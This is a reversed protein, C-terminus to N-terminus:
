ESIRHRSQMRFLSKRLSREQSSMLFAFHGNLLNMERVRSEDRNHHKSNCLLATKRTIQTMKETCAGAFFIPVYFSSLSLVVIKHYLPRFVHLYSSAWGQKEVDKLLEGECTRQLLHLWALSFTCGSVGEKELEGKHLGEVKSSDRNVQGSDLKITERM